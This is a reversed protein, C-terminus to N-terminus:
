QLDEVNKQLDAEKSEVEAINSKENISYQEKREAKDHLNNKETDVHHDKEEKMNVMADGKVTDCSNLHEYEM